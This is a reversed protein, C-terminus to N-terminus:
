FIASQWIFTILILIGTTLWLKRSGFLLKSGDLNSLPIISWIAYYLSLDAIQSLGVISLIIYLFLNAMIGWFVILALHWDTMQAFRYLEHRKAIRETRPTIDFELIPMWLWGGKSIFSLLPAIWLMPIPAKLHRKEAFGFRYMSWFKTTVNAELRYAVIKKVLVNTIIILLFGGLSIAFLELSDLTPYIYSISLIIAALPIIIIEKSYSNNKM